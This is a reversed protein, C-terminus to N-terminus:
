ADSHVPRIASDMAVAMQLVGGRRVQAAFSQRQQSWLLSATNSTPRSKCSSLQAQTTLTALSSLHAAQATASAPSWKPMLISLAPLYAAHQHLLTTAKSCSMLRQASTQLM